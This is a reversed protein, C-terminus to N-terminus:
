ERVLEMDEADYENEELERYLDMDSFIGTFDGTTHDTTTTGQSLIHWIYWQSDVEVGNIFVKLQGDEVRLEFSDINGRKYDHSCM